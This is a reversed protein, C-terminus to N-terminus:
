PGIHVSRAGAPQCMLDLVDGVRYLPEGRRSVGKVMLRGRQRWKSVTAVRLVADDPGYAAVARVIEVTTALEDQVARLMIERRVAVDHRTGCQPCTITPAEVQAYLDRDCGGASCIGVFVVDPPRDIMRKAREAHRGLENLMQGADPHRCVAPLMAALFRACARPAGSRAIGTGFRAVGYAGAWRALSEALAAHAKSAEYAFPLPRETARSGGQDATMRSQRTITTDLEDLLVPLSALLASM